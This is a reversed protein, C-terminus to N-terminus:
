WGGGGGGGGGGGSSGSGGSGSPSGTNDAIRSSLTELQSTLNDVNFVSSDSAVFWVPHYTSFYEAGYIDRMKRIWEKTIGFVIAVPLLVEFINEKEYFPQRYREAKEMYLKLGRIKWNMQAGKLTRKPMIIAFGLCIVGSLILSGTAVPVLLSFLPIASGGLIIATILLVSRWRLGSKEILRKESLSTITQERIEQLVKYFTNKLSTLMVQDGTAFLKDYLLRQQATLVLGAVYRKELVYDTSTFLLKKEHAERIVLAQKVALEVIAATIFVKDFNGNKMLVGLELMDLNDPVEYEPIITKHWNPDQGYRKWMRFCAVFCMLPLLLWLYQSYRERLSFQYLSFMGTPLSVSVTIGEGPNLPRTATVVLTREDSWTLEALDTHKLGLLGTYYSVDATDQVGSPFHVTATFADLPLTWYNGNVNWYFEDRQSDPSRIVNKVRYSIKYQHVGTITKKPDGIKWTLTHDNRNVTTTFPYPKGNFDTIGLLEVPTEVVGTETRTETPVIRFIGHKDSANGCDATIWETVVMTSDSALVFEARLNQVYWDTVNERAQVNPVLSLVSVIGLSVLFFLKKVM